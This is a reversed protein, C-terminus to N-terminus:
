KFGTSEEIFEPAKFEVFSAYDVFENVEKGNRIFLFISRQMNIIDYEKTQAFETLNLETM